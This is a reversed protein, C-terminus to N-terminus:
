RRGYVAPVSQVNNQVNFIEKLSFKYLGKRDVDPKHNGTSRRGADM